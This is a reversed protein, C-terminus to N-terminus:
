ARGHSPLMLWDLSGVFSKLIGLSRNHTPVTHYTHQMHLGTAFLSLSRGTSFAHTRPKPLVFKIDVYIAYHMMILASQAPSWVAQFLGHKGCIDLLVFNVHLLRVSFWLSRSIRSQQQLLQAVIALNCFISIDIFCLIGAQCCEACRM